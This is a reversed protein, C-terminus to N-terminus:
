PNRDPKQAAVKPCCNGERIVHVSNSISPSHCTDHGGQIWSVHGRDRGSQIPESYYRLVLDTKVDLGGEVKAGIWLRVVCTARDQQMRLLRILDYTIRLRCASSRDRHINSLSVTSWLGEGDVSDSIDM